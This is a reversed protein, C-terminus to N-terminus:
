LEKVVCGWLLTRTPFTIRSAEKTEAREFRNEYFVLFFVGVVYTAIFLFQETRVSSPTSKTNSSTM